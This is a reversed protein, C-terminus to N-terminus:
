TAIKPLVPVTMPELDATPLYKKFVHVQSRSLADALINERGPLHEAKIRINLNLAHLVLRRMLCMIKPEKSTQKNIVHVLAENDCLFLISKNAFRRGWIEIALVIPYFELLTINQGKWEENWTGQFWSNGLVAGYGISGSADTALQISDSRIWSDDFFFYKGNFSNLFELWVRLDDKCYKRLRIHHYPQTIGRTLDFLRRLFPRGPLIVQCAFSLLGLLSQLERLTVKKKRLFMDIMEICKIIKEKPLRAYQSVTDIEIGLFTLTTNPGETKEASIPVGINECIRLFTALSKECENKNAAIFLFDDLVHYVLTTPIYNIMIWEIATSFKEFINCSSSCGMPLCRDFYYHDKWFMGFLHYENPCLPIIRFASAIDSKAMFAPQPFTKIGKIAEELKTYQVSAFESSINDNISSGKPFSLHHIMRYTNPEKKECIGIPSLHILQFPPVVQFPGMIRGLKIEKLLKKDVEEPKQIASRLNHYNLELKFSSCMTSFGFRFGQVLYRLLNEDYGTLYFELIETDIPTPIDFDKTETIPVFLVISRM